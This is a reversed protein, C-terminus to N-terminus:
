QKSCAMCFIIHKSQKAFRNEFDVVVPPLRVKVLFRLSGMRKNFTHTSVQCCVHSSTSRSRSKEVRLILLCQEKDAHATQCVHDRPSHPSHMANDLEPSVRSQKLSVFVRTDETWCVCCKVSVVSVDGSVLRPYRDGSYAYTPLSISSFGQRFIHFNFLDKPKM